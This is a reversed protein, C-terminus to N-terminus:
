ARRLGRFHCRPFGRMTKSRCRFDASPEGTSPQALEFCILKELEVPGFHALSIFVGVWGGVCGRVWARM